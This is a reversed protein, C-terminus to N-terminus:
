RGRGLAMSRELTGLRGTLEAVQHTLAEVDARHMGEVRLRTQEVQGALARRFTDWAAVVAACGVIAISIAIM